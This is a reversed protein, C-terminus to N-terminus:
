QCNRCLRRNDAEADAISDFWVMNESKINSAARCNYTHYVESDAAGLVKGNWSTSSANSTSQSNSSSQNRSPNSSPAVAPTVIQSTDPTTQPAPSNTQPKVAEKPTSAPAPSAQPEAQTEPASQPEPVTEPINAAPQTEAEPEVPQTEVPREPEDPSGEEQNTPQQPQSQQQPASAPRAGTNQTQVTSPGFDAVETPGRMYTLAIGGILILTFVGVSATFATLIPILISDDQPPKQSM